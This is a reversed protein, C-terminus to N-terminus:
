IATTLPINKIYDLIFNATYAQSAIKSAELMDKQHLNKLEEEKQNLLQSEYIKKAQQMLTSNPLPLAKTNEGKNLAVRRNDRRKLENFYGNIAAKAEKSNYDINDQYEKLEHSIQDQIKEKAEQMQEDFTGM